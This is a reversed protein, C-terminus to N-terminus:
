RSRSAFKSAMARFEEPSLRGDRNSDLKDFNKAVRPLKAEAETKDIFGDKNADAGQLRELAAQKQEDSISQQACAIGSFLILAAAATKSLRPINM